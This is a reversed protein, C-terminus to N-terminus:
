SSFVWSIGRDDRSSPRRKRCPRSLLVSDERWFGCSAQSGTPWETPELLYGDRSSLLTSDNAEGRSSAQSGPHTQFAVGLDRDGRSLFMLDQVCALILDRKGYLSEHAIGLEGECSSNFIPSGQALVLPLRFDGDYSSFGATVRSFGLPEGMMAIHPVKGSCRRLLLGVNWRSTRFLVQCGQHSGM